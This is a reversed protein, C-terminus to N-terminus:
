CGPLPGACGSPLVPGPIGGGGVLLVIQNLPDKELLPWAINVNKL